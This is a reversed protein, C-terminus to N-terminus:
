TSYHQALALSLKADIDLINIPSRGTGPILILDAPTPQDTLNVYGTEIGGSDDESLYTVVPQAYAWRVDSRVVIESPAPVHRAVLIWSRRDPLIYCCAEGRTPATALLLNAPLPADLLRDAQEESIRWVREHNITWRYLSAWGDIFVRPSGEISGAQLILNQLRTAIMYLRKTTM